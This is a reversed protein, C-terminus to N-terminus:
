ATRTPRSIMKPQEEVKFDREGADYMVVMDAPESGTNIAYHPVGAPITICDGAVMEYAEDGVYHLLKGKLLYLVEECTPHSHRTNATNARIVVRAASLGRSGNLPTGAVFEISGWDHQKTGSTREAVRSLLKM